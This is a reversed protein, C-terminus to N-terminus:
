GPLRVAASASPFSSLRVMSSQPVAMPQSRWALYADLLLKAHATPLMDSLRVGSAACAPADLSLWAPAAEKREPDFVYPEISTVSAIAAATASSANRWSVDDGADAAAGDKHEDKGEALEGEGAAQTLEHVLEQQNGPQLHLQQKSAKGTQELYRDIVSSDTLEDPRLWRAASASSREFKVLYEPDGGTSGTRCALVREPTAPTVRAM